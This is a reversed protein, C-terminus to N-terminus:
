GVAAFRSAVPPASVSASALAGGGSCKRRIARGASLHRAKLLLLPTSQAQRPPAVTQAEILCSSSRKLALNRCDRKAESKSSLDAPLMRPLAM